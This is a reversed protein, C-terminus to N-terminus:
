GDGKLHSGRAAWGTEAVEETAEKAENEEDDEQPAAPYKELDVLDGVFILGLGGIGNGDEAGSLVKAM